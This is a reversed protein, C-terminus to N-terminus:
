RDTCDGTQSGLGVATQGVLPRCVFFRWGASPSVRRLLVLNPKERFIGFVCPGSGSVKAAVPGYEELFRLARGAEPCLRLVPTTLANENRAIRSFFEKGDRCHEFSLSNDYKTLRLDFSGYVEAASLSAAPKILVIWYDFFLNVARILDGRGRGEAQASGLFFPVDAGLCKGWESLDSDSLSLEHLTNVAKLTAAANSSGGGLGAAIPIRKDVVVRVNVPRGTFASAQTLVRHILNEPGTPFEPNASEIRIGGSETREFTLTDYLDIAQFTTFIEHYGDPRRGLVALNLNIKAASRFVLTNM